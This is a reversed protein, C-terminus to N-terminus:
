RDTRGPLRMDVIRRKLAGLMKLAEEPSQAKLIEDLAVSAQLRVLIEYNLSRDLAAAVAALQRHLDEPLRVAVRSLSENKAVRARM